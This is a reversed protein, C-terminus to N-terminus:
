LQSKRYKGRRSMYNNISNIIYKNNTDVYICKDFGMKFIKEIIQEDVVKKAIVMHDIKKSKLTMHIDRMIVEVYIKFENYTTTERQNNNLVIKQFDIIVFDMLRKNDVEYLMEYEDLIIGIRVNSNASNNSKIVARWFLFDKYRMVNPIVVMINKDRLSETILNILRDYYGRYEYYIRSYGHNESTFVKSNADIFLPLVVYANKVTKMRESLILRIDSLKPFISMNRYMERLDIYSFEEEYFSLDLSTKIRTEGNKSTKSVLLYKSMEECSFFHHKVKFFIGKYMAIEIILDSFLVDFFGQMKEEINFGDESYGNNTNKLYSYFHKKMTLLVEQNFIEMGKIYEIMLTILEILSRFIVRQDRMVMVFSDNILEFDVYYEKYSKIVKEIFDKREEENILRLNMRQIDLM